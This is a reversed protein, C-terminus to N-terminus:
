TGICYINQEGRIFIRGDAIAPSAYVPEGLSNIRLVEHTPGAKLIFTDGEESTLLLKGDFAVPSAFFVSPAPFRGGEYKLQGSKADLATMTGSDTILYINGGYSVGSAVYATGKDHRWLIRGDNEDVM